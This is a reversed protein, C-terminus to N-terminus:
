NINVGFLIYCDENHVTNAHCLIGLLLRENESHWEQKYNGITM